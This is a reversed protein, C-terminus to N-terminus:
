PGFPPPASFTASASASNASSIPSQRHGRRQCRRWAGRAGGHQRRAVEDVMRGALRLLRGAVVLLLVDGELAQRDADFVLLARDAAADAGIALRPGTLKRGVVAIQLAGLARVAIVDIDVDAGIRCAALDEDDVLHVLPGAAEVVVVED